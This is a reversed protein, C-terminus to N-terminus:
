RVVDWRLRLWRHRVRGENFRRVLGDLRIVLRQLGVALMVDAVFGGQAGGELVQEGFGGLRVVQQEDGFLTGAGAALADHGVAGEAVVEIQVAAVPFGLVGVVMEVGLDGLLDFLAIREAVDNELVGPLRHQELALAFHQADVQM